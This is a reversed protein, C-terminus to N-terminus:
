SPCPVAGQCPPEVLSTLDAAFGGSLILLASLAVLIWGLTALLRDPQGRVSAGHTLAVWVGAILGLVGLEAM